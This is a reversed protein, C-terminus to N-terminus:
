QDFDRTSIIGNYFKANTYILYDSVDSVLKQEAHQGDALAHSLHATMVVKYNAYQGVDGLAEIQKDSKVFYSIDVELQEHDMNAVQESTLPIAFSYVDGPNEEDGSNLSIRDFYDSMSVKEYSWNDTTGTKKQLELTGVLYCPYNEDAPDDKNLLLLQTANYMGKTSIWVGGNESVEKGNIGLQSVNGDLSVKDYANYSLEASSFKERYFKIGNQASLSMVSGDLSDESYAMSAAVSFTIGSSDNESRLPFQNDIREADGEYSLRIDASINTNLFDSGKKNRITLYLIGSVIEYSYDVDDLTEGNLKVDQIEINSALIQESGLYGNNHMQVMFRFYTPDDKAYSAFSQRDKEPVEVAANLSLDIYDNSPVKMSGTKDEGVPSISVSKLEYFKGLTYQNQGPTTRMKSPLALSSTSTMKELGLTANQTIIGEGEPCNITLYYVESVKVEETGSGVTLTYYDTGAKDANTKPAYYIFEEGNWRRITADTDTADVRKLTGNANDQTETLPLLDSIYVSQYGALKNFKLVAATTGTELDSGDGVFFTNGTGRRNMDVLTYRTSTDGLSGKQQGLRVQKDYSWLLNTGSAINSNWEDASWIYSYTLQATFHDGYNALIANNNPYAAAYDSSGTHMRITFETELVKKVVVPIFLHYGRSSDSVPHHYYVDLVTFQNNQNDHASASVSITNDSNITLSAKDIKEFRNRTSNWQYTYANMSTYQKRNVSTGSGTQECNTLVSIYENIMKTIDASKTTDIMLVGFDDLKGSYDSQKSESADFFTTIKDKYEGSTKNFKDALSKYENKGTVRYTVRNYRSVYKGTPVDGSLDNIISSKVEDNMGDGTLRLGTKDSASKYVTLDSSANVTVYPATAATDGPYGNSIKGVTGATNKNDGFSTESYDAFIVYNNGNSNGELKESNDKNFSKRVFTADDYGNLEYPYYGGKVSMGVIKIAANAGDKMGGTILGLFGGTCKNDDSMTVESYPTGSGDNNYVGINTESLTVMENGDDNRVMFNGSHASKDYKYYLRSSDGCYYGIIPEDVSINYGLVSGQNAIYTGTTSYSKSVGVFLGAAGAFSDTAPDASVAYGPDTNNSLYYSGTPKQTTAVICNTCIFDSVKTQTNDQKMGQILGTTGDSVVKVNTMTVRNFSSNKQASGGFLGGVKSSGAFSGSGQTYVTLDSITIDEVTADIQDSTQQGVLGGCYGANLVYCNKIDLNKVALDTRSYGKILGCAPTTYYAEKKTHKGKYDPDLVVEVATDTITTNYLNLSGGYTAQLGIIGGLGYDCNYAFQPGYIYLGEIMLKGSTQSNVTMDGGCYYGAIGGGGSYGNMKADDTCGANYMELCADKVWGIQSDNLETTGTVKFTKGTNRCTGVFGGASYGGEITINSYSCSDFEFTGAKTSVSTTTKSGPTTRRSEGIVGFFGGSYKSGTVTLMDTKVHSFTITCRSDTGNATMGAFGGASTEGIYDNTNDTRDDYYSIRSEGSITLYQVNTNKKFNVVPFLGIGQVWWGGAGESAYEKVVRKMTVTRMTTGNDGVISGLNMTRNRIKDSANDQYSTGIGRFGNGYLSMNCDKEFILSFSDDMNENKTLIAAKNSNIDSKSYKLVFYSKQWKKNDSYGGWYGCDTKDDGSATAGVSEYTGTRCRGFLYADNNYKGADSTSSECGGAGSNAIASLVWLDQPGSIMINMGGSRSVFQLKDTKDLRSIKYNKDTNDLEMPCDESCAYGDLVRGVFPNRYYYDEYSDSAYEAIGSGNINRFIVGGGSELNGGILGVYGGISPIFQNSGTVTVAGSSESKPDDSVDLNEISVNDIINDGGIVYGIVGGFFSQKAREQSPAQSTITMAMASCGDGADESSDAKGGFDLVLNKVVSGQSFAILGGFTNSSGQATVYIRPYSGDKKQRGVIVGNFANQDPTSGGMGYFSESLEIDNIIMYYANRMYLRVKSSDLDKSDADTTKWTSGSKYKYHGTVKGNEDKVSNDHSALSASGTASVVTYPLNVEWGNSTGTAIFAAATELQAANTIIFPDDYTGCGDEIAVSQLNIDLEHYYANGNAGEIVAVYRLYSGDAFCTSDTSNESTTGLLGDVVYETSELYYYQNGPNRGQETNSIEVGYTVNGTWVGDKKAATDAKTFTYAGSSATDNVNYAFLNMFTAKTFISQKTGYLVEGGAKTRADLKMNQFNVNMNVATSNGINGFLSSAAHTINNTIYADTTEVNKVSFTSNSDATNVLLPAYTDNSAGVVYIGNLTLGDIRVTAPYIKNENVEGNMDGVILAGSKGNKDQGISGSLASSKVTLAAVSDKRSIMNLLLGTQMMYHQRKDNSLKKNETRGDTSDASELTNIPEYDFTVKVTDLTLSGNFDVPYYSLGELDIVGKVTTANNKEIESFYSVLNDECYQGVSWMLLESGSEITGEAKSYSNLNYYYRTNPNDYEKDLQKQYTTCKTRNIKEDTAISVIGNGADSITKGVLEDFYTGNKLTVQVLSDVKYSDKADIELYLAYGKDSYDDGRGVLLASPTGDDTKGNFVVNSQYRIGSNKIMWHGGAQYVLGGFGASPADVSANDVTVGQVDLDTNSWDYGFLGGTKSTSKSIIDFGNITFGDIVIKIKGYKAATNETSGLIGGVKSDDKSSYAAQIEAKTGAGSGISSDKFTIMGDTSNNICGIYGGITYDGTEATDSITGIWKCQTFTIDSNGSVYGTFGGTHIMQGSAEGHFSIDIDSTVTEYATKGAMQNAVIGGVYAAEKGSETVGCYIYGNVTLNNINAAEAEALLGIYKHDYIQGSGTEDQKCVAGNRIGYVDGIDLTLIHGEGDLNGTFASQEGNDRFLGTIGTDSLDINGTLTIIESCSVNKSLRLAGDTKAGSCQLSMAVAAFNQENKVEESESANGYEHFGNITVTHASEDYYFLNATDNETFTTTEKLKEGDIRIVEGWNGIDSVLKKGADRVFSWGSNAVSDYDSGNGSAYVLVSGRYGVLQGYGAGTGAPQIGSLDTKGSLRVVGDKVCGIMGGSYAAVNNKTSSITVTGADLFLSAIDDNSYGILGGFYTGNDSAQNISVTLADAKIYSKGSVQAIVGAYSTKMQKHASRITLKQVILSAALKEASYKGILGGYNDSGNDESQINTGNQITLVNATNNNELVGFVGGSYKASTIGAAKINIYSLDWTTDEEETCIGFLGGAAGSDADASLTTNVTLQNGADLIMTKGAYEGAIGGANGNSSNIETCSISCAGHFTLKSDSGAKGVLGGANTKGDVSGTFTLDPVVILQAEEKMEGVLAGANGDTSIVNYEASEGSGTYAKVTLSSDKELTNCFFGRNGSGTVVNKGAPITDAVVSLSVSANEGVTGIIGGFTSYKLNGEDASGTHSVALNLNIDHVNDDTGKVYRSAFVPLATDGTAKINLTANVQADQSFVNFLSRDLVIYDTYKGTFGITGAFPAVDSGLGAFESGSLDMANNDHPAINITATQYDAADLKSLAIFDAASNVTYTIHGSADVVPTLSAPVEDGEYVATEEKETDAEEAATKIEEKVSQQETADAETSNEETDKKKVFEESSVESDESSAETIVTAEKPGNEKSSDPEPVSDELSVQTYERNSQGAFASANSGTLVLSTILGLAIIKKFLRNM